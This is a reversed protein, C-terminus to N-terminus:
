GDRYIYNEVFFPYGILDEPLCRFARGIFGTLGPGHHQRHPIAGFLGSQPNVQPGFFHHYILHAIEKILGKHGHGVGEVPGRMLVFQHIVDFFERSFKILFEALRFLLLMFVSEFLYIEILRSCFIMAPSFVAMSALSSFVTRLRRAMLAAMM